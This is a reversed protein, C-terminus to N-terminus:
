HKIDFNHMVLLSTFNQTSSLQNIMRSIEYLEATGGCPEVSVVM